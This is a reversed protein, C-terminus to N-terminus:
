EEVDEWGDEQGEGGGMTSPRVEQGGGGLRGDAGRIGGVGAGSVHQFDTPWGTELERPEPSGGAEGGSKKGKFPAKVKKVFSAWMAKPGRHPKKEGKTVAKAGKAVPLATITDDPQDFTQERIGPLATETAAAATSAYVGQRQGRLDVASRARFIMSNIPLFNSSASHPM